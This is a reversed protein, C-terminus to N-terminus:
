GCTAEKRLILVTAVENKRKEFRVPVPTGSIGIVQGCRDSFENASKENPFVSAAQLDVVALRPRRPSNNFLEFHNGLYGGECEVVFWPTMEERVPVTAHSRIPSVPM